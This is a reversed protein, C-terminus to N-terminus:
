DEVEPARARLQEVVPAVVAVVVQTGVVSEVPARDLEAHLLAEAVEVEPECNLSARQGLELAPPAPLRRGPEAVHVRRAGVRALPAAIRLPRDPEGPPPRVVVAPERGAGPLTGRVEGRADRAGDRVRR